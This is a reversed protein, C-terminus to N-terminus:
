RKKHYLVVDSIKHNFYIIRDKKNFSFHAEVNKNSTTDVIEVNCGASDVFSNIVKDHLLLCDINNEIIWFLQPINSGFDSYGHNYALDIKLRGLATSFDVMDDNFARQETDM